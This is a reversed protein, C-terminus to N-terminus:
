FIPSKLYLNSLSSMPTTKKIQVKISNSVKDNLVSVNM